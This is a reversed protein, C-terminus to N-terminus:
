ADNKAEEEKEAQMAVLAFHLAYQESGEGREQHRKCLV